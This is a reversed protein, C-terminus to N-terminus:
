FLFEPRLDVIEIVQQGPFLWKLQIDKHRGVSIIRVSSPYRFSQWTSDQPTDHILDSILYFDIESQKYAPQELTIRAKELAGFLDTHAHNKPKRLYSALKSVAARVEAEFRQRNEANQRIISKRRYINESGTLPVIGPRITGAWFPTQYYSENGIYMGALTIEPRLSDAMIIKVMAEPEWKLHGASGSLDQMVLIDLAPLQYHPEFDEYTTSCSALVVGVLIFLIRILNKM